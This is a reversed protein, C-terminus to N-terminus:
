ELVGYARRALRETELLRRDEAVMEAVLQPFPTTPAWGLKDRAKAANGLLLEVETPRFYIPDVKILCRETGAVFGREDIGAGAM